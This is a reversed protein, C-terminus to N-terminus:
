KDNVTDMKKYDNLFIEYGGIEDTQWNNLRRILRLDGIAFLKDYEEIGTKFIGAVVLRRFNSKGGAADIFHINITDNVKIQLQEAVPKRFCLKKVTCHIM